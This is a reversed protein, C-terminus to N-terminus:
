SARKIASVGRHLESKRLVAISVNLVRLLSNEVDDEGGDKYCVDAAEEIEDTVASEYGVEDLWLVEEGKREVGWWGCGEFSATAASRLLFM